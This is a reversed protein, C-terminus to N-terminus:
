WYLIHASFIVFTCGLSLKPEPLLGRVHMWNILYLNFLRNEEFEARAEEAEMEAKHLKSLLKSLNANADLHARPVVGRKAPM